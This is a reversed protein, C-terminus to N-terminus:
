IRGTVHMFKLKLVAVYGSYLQKIGLKSTGVTREKFTIPVECIKFRKLHTKYLLEQVIAPGDAMVKNLNVAKFVKRRFCRFGSNPDKVNLGLIFSIYFSALKTIIRRSVTRGVDKGGKVLRSGLVLDCEKIKKLLKPIDKPNHSFDADMEIIYDAGHVLAYKFGAVGAFGRGRNKKRLLLSVKKNKKAITQVTKWTGDPSNDDIVLIELDKLKLSLIADILRKINKNENYTPVTVITKEFKM